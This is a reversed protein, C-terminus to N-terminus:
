HASGSTDGPAADRHDQATPRTGPYWCRTGEHGPAQLTWSPWAQPHEQRVESASSYCTSVQSGSIFQRRESQPNKDQTGFAADPSNLVPSIPHESSSASIASTDDLTAGNGISQTPERSKAVSEIEAPKIQPRATPQLSNTQVTPGDEIIVGSPGAPQHVDESVPSGVTPPLPHPAPTLPAPKRVPAAAPRPPPASIKDLINALIDQEPGKLINERIEQETAHLKLINELIEQETVHLETIDRTTQEHGAVFQDVRQRVEALGFSIAKLDEQDPPLTVAQMAPAAPPALWSLRPSSSAIMERAADGYSQWALTAVVGICFIILFRAVARSVRKGVPVRPNLLRQVDAPDM